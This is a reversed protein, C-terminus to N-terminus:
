SSFIFLICTSDNIVLALINKINKLTSSKQHLAAMIAGSVSFGKGACVVVILSIM